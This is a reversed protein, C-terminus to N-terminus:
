FVFPILNKRSSPWDKEDFKKKNWENQNHSRAFLYSVMGFLVLYSTIQQSAVAIGAWALLEFFYHPAAVYEFLGGRPAKYEKTKGGATGEESRLMALLHHHYFNGLQGVAFLLTGLTLASGFVSPNSVLCIMLTNLAYSIGIAISAGKDMEGSFKHLFLVEADRKLFHALAMWGAITPEYGSSLSPLAVQFLFAVITAPVYATLMGTKSPVKATDQTAPSNAFKSYPMPNSTESKGGSLILACQLANFCLVGPSTNVYPVLSTAVNQVLM